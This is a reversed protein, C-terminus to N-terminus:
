RTWTAFDLSRQKSKHTKEKLNEGAAGAHHGVADGGDVVVREGAAVGQDGDRKGLAEDGDAVVGEDAGGGQRRGGKNGAPRVEM